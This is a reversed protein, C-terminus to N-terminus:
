DGIYTSVVSLRVQPIRFVSLFPVTLDPDLPSQEVNVLTFSLTSVGGKFSLVCCFNMELTSQVCPSHFAISCSESLEQKEELDRFNVNM